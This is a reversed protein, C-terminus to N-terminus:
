VAEASAPSAGHNHGDEGATMHGLSVIGEGFAFRKKPYPWNEGRAFTRTFFSVRTHNREKLGTQQPGRLPVRLPGRQAPVVYM